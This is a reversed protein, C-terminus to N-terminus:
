RARASPISSCFTSSTTPRAGEESGFARAHNQPRGGVGPKSRPKAAEGWLKERRARSPQIPPKAAAEALGIQNEGSRWRTKAATTMPGAPTGPSPIWPSPSAAPDPPRSIRRARCRRSSACVSTSDPASSIAAASAAAALSLAGVQRGKSGKGKKASGCRKGGKKAASSKAGRRKQLSEEEAKAQHDRDRAPHHGAAHDGAPHRRARDREGPSRDAPNGRSAEAMESSSDAFKVGIVTLLGNRNDPHRRASQRLM